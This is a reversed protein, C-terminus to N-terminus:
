NELFSQAEAMSSKMLSDVMLIGEYQKQQEKTVRIVVSDAASELSDPVMTHHHMWSMMEEDAKQLHQIVERGKLLKTDHDGENQALSDVAKQVKQRYNYINDMQLMLEDHVEIAKNHVDVLKDYAGGQDPNCAMFLMITSIM